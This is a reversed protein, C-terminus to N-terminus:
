WSASFSRAAGISATAAAAGPKTGRLALVTLGLAIVAVAANILFLWRWSPLIQLMLGAYTGIVWGLSDLAGILSIPEARRDPPFIDSVLAMGVSVSAGAGIAQIIRGVILSILPLADPDPWIPLARLATLPLDTAFGAWLSGVIFIVICAIFIRKRPLVDSLRGVLTLSITYTLLYATVAWLAQGARNLGKPGLLDLTAQPLVVVISTLDISGILIPICILTFILWPNITRRDTV